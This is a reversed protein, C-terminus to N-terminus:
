AGSPSPCPSGKGSGRFCVKEAFLYEPRNTYPAPPACVNRNVDGCAGLTSGMARIVSSFVKKLDGKLVGHLQYTQRTTLRLTGNGYQTRAVHVDAGLHRAGSSSCLPPRPSMKSFSVENALDDMVLYLQNTVKGAPQRTRMMFQYYKGGGFARKDRHDQMYSGHFKMLQMAPENISTAPSVLEEMLPHRLFDSEEKITEVKSRAAKNASPPRSPTAVARVVVSCARSSQAAPAARTPRLGFEGRLFPM